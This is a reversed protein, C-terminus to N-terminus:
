VHFNNQIQNNHNPLWFIYGEFIQIILEYKYRLEIPDILLILGIM